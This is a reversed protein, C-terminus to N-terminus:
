EEMDAFCAMVLKKKSMMDFDISRSETFADTEVFSGEDFLMHIRDIATNKGKAKQAEIRQLNGGLSAEQKKIRLENVKEIMSM